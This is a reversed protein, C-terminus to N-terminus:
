VGTTEARNIEPDESRPLGEGELLVKRPGRGGGKGGGPCGSGSKTKVGEGQGRPQDDEKMSGYVDSYGWEQPQYVVGLGVSDDRAPMGTPKMYLSSKDGAGTLNRSQMGLQQHQQQRQKQLHQTAWNRVSEGHSTHVSGGTFYNDSSSSLLVHHSKVTVFAINSDVFGGSNIVTCYYEGSDADVASHIVLKFDTKGELAGHNKYWQFSCPEPLAEVKISLSVEQGYLIHQSLPHVLICPKVSSSPHIYPPSPLPSPSPSLTHSM